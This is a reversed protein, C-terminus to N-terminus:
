SLVQVARRRRPPRRSSAPSSCSGCGPWLPSRSGTARMTNWTDCPARVVVLGTVVAPTDVVGGGAAAAVATAAIVLLAVGLMQNAIRALVAGVLPALLAHTHRLLWAALTARGADISPYAVPQQQQRM